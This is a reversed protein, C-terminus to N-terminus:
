LPIATVVLRDRDLFGTCTFLTLHIDTSPNIVDIQNASVVATAMIIFRKVTQDSFTISLDMGPKAKKLNGLLNPWNHGYMVSNGPSGPLPTSTLYSIGQTSYDWKYNNIAGPYIAANIKLDPISISIPSLSDSNPTASASLPTFRQWVLYGGYSISVLSLSLSIALIIKKIM